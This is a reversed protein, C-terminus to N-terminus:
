RGAVGGTKFRRPQVDTGRGHSMISPNYCSERRHGRHLLKADRGRGRVAACNKFSSSTALSWSCIFGHSFRQRVCNGRM